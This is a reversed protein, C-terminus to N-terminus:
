WSSSDVTGRVVEASWAGGMAGKDGGGDSGGGETAEWTLGCSTLRGPDSPGTGFPLLCSLQGKSISTFLVTSPSPSVSPASSVPITMTFDRLGFLGIVLSPFMLYTYTHTHSLSCKTHFQQGDIWRELTPSWRNDTLSMERIPSVTAWASAMILLSLLPGTLITAM